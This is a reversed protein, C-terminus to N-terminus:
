LGPFDERCRNREMDDAWLMVEAVGVTIDLGLIDNEKRM